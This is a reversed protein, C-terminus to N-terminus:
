YACMCAQYVWERISSCIIQNVKEFGIDEGIIDDIMEKDSQHLAEAKEADIKCMHLMISASDELLSDMFRTEEKQPLLIDFKINYKITGYLEWICWSRTLPCPQDWPELIVMTHGCQRIGNHFTTAFWDRQDDLSMARLIDGGHQCVSFVDIWLFVGKKPEGVDPGEGEGGAKPEFHACLIESVMEFDYKWAHSVFHTAEGVLSADESRLYDVFSCQRSATAPKVLHMCVDGTTIWRIVRTGPKLKKTLPECGRDLRLGSARINNHVSGDQFRVSFEYDEMSTSDHKHRDCRVVFCPQQHRRLFQSHYAEFSQLAKLSIGKSPFAIASGKSSSSVRRQLTSLSSMSSDSTSRVISDLYNDLAPTSVAADAEDDPLDPPRPPVIGPSNNASAPAIIFWYVLPVLCPSALLLCLFLNDMGCWFCFLMTSLHLSTAIKAMLPDGPSPLELGVTHQYEIAKTATFKIKHCLAEYHTM